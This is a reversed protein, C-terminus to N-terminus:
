YSDDGIAKLDNIAEAIPVAKDLPYKSMKSKLQRLKTKEEDLLDICSLFEQIIKGYTFAVSKEM